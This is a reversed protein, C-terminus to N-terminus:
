PLESQAPHREPGAHLWLNICPDLADSVLHHDEGPEVILVDGSELRYPVGNIEMVAKGQLIIFAERDEHVHRDDCAPGEASHTRLRPPKFSLAGACLYAGPLYASLIHGDTSDPLQSLRLKIM